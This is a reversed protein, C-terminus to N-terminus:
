ALARFHTLVRELRPTYDWGEHFTEFVHSVDDEDLCYLRAVLADIEAILAEKHAEDVVGGVPVAVAEAWAAYRDDVAALTGSVEEIRRRLPDARDSRPIPFPNFVHYNVHTEVFRRAYWDLPISCLVALLYAQDREDGLPWLLFPAQNTIVVEPPVLAAIVTRTDTPEPSM